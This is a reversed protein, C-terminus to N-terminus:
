RPPVPPSKGLRWGCDSSPLARLLAELGPAMAPVGVTGTLARWAQQSPPSSVNVSNLAAVSGLDWSSKAPGALSRHPAPARPLHLGPTCPCSRPWTAPTLSPFPAAERASPFPPADWPGPWPHVVGLGCPLLVAKECSERERGRM